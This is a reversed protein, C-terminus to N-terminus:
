SLSCRLDNTKMREQTNLEYFACSMFDLENIVYKRIQFLVKSQTLHFNELMQKHGNM